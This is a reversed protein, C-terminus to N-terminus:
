NFASTRLAQQSDVCLRVTSSMAMRSLTEKGVGAPCHCGAASRMSSVMSTIKDRLPSRGLSTDFIPILQPPGRSLLLPVISDGGLRGPQSLTSITFIRSSRKLMSATSCFSALAPAKASHSNPAARPKLFTTNM